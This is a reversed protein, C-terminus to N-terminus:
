RCRVAMCAAKRPRRVGSNEALRDVLLSTDDEGEKGGSTDLSLTMSGDVLAHYAHM